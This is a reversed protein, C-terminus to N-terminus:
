RVQTNTTIIENTKSLEIFDKFYVPDCQNDSDIQLIMKFKMEIAIKYGTLCANAHGSNKQSRYIINNNKISKVAQDSGDTSGDNIIIFKYNQKYYKQIEINWDNLLKVINKEENYVPVVIALSM